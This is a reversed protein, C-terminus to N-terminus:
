TFSQGSSDLAWLGLPGHGLAGHGGHGGHGHGRPRHGWPGKVELGLSELAGYAWPGM